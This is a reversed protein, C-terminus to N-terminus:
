HATRMPLTPGTAAKRRAVPTLLFARRIGSYEGTGVIQGLNNIARAEELEWKPDSGAAINLDLIKHHFWLVAHRRGNRTESEGVIEDHDNVAMAMSHSGGLTELTTMTGRQNMKGQEYLFAVAEFPKQREGYGCVDGRGNIGMGFSEDYGSPTGLNTMVDRHYYFARNGQSSSSSTGSVEGHANIGTAYSDGGGPFTGLDRMTGNQWSFAHREQQGSILADSSGVVQGDDNIAEALSTTGGPLTGLGVLKGKTYLFAHLTLSQSSGKTPASPQIAGSAGFSIMQGKRLFPYPDSTTAKASPLENESFGVVQGHNNVAMADGIVTSLAIMQGKSYLFPHPGSLTDVTGAVQSQDNIGYARSGGGGLIGLDTIIYQPATQHHLSPHPVTPNNTPAASLPTALRLLAASVAVMYFFKCFIPKYTLEM